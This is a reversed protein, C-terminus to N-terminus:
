ALRVSRDMLTLSGSVVLLRDNAYNLSASRLDRLCRELPLVSQRNYGIRLGALQVMRDVAQYTLEAATVKLTNLHIQASMQQLSQGTVRLEVVEDRVRHVYASVLELDMRIRALRENVLESRIDITSPRRSSRVLAVM